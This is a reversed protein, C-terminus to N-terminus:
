CITYGQALKKWEPNQVEVVFHPLEVLHDEPDRPYDTVEKEQLRLVACPNFARTQLLPLDSSCWM